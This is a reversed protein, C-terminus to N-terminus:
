AAREVPLVRRLEEFTTDGQLVRRIGDVLMPQYGSHVAADAIEASPAGQGIMRRLPEDVFLAEFVAIRGSYGTGACLICGDARYVRTGAAIGSEGALEGSVPVPTSCERCLRRLLRQAVIASVGASLTARSVGLEVLRDLARPADNAHLTTLLLQGSLSASAAVAATEEDRMEGVMIVNPDQRLFARLASAFTVGARPNVQMQALGPIRVEVPDEISCVNEHEANREGIAAYVTTTKGSGTPGCAVVFGHPARVARRFRELMRDPMGISDLAPIRAQQDLLRLVVKEGGITPMSSVRTDLSRGAREIAYRGDQPQRREAIDMGALLKVRSVIQTYLEPSLARSECLMGDVRRRVRGGHGTPEIHIDSAASRIADELIEDLARIAPAEDARSKAYASISALNTPEIAGHGTAATM